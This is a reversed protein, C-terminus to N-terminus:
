YVRFHISTEFNDSKLGGSTSSFSPFKRYKCTGKCGFINIKCLMFRANQIVLCNLEHCATREAARIVGGTASNATRVSSLINCRTCLRVCSLVM